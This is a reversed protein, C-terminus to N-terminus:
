HPTKLLGREQVLKLFATQSDNTISRMRPLVTAFGEILVHPVVDLVKAGSPSRYFAVLDSIEDASLYRSYLEALDKTVAQVHALRIREFEQRLTALTADDLTPNRHRLASEIFPWTTSVAQANLRAFVREFILTYLEHAAQKLKATEAAPRPASQPDPQAYLESAAAMAAVLALVAPLNWLRGM